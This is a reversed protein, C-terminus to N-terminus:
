TYYQIETNLSLDRLMKYSKSRTLTKKCSDIVYFSEQCNKPTDRCFRAHNKGSEQM